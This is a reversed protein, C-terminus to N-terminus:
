WRVLQPVIVEVVGTATQTGDPGVAALPYVVVVHPVFLVVLTGTAVQVGLAGMAAFM